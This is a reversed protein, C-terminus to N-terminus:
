FWNSRSRPNTLRQLLYVIAVLIALGVLVRSLRRRRRFGWPGGFGQEYRRGFDRGFSGFGRGFDGFGHLPPPAGSVRYNSWPIFDALPHRRRRQRFVSFTVFGSWPDNRGVRSRRSGTDPSM